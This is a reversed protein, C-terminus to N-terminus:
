SHEEEAESGRRRSRRGHEEEEEAGRSKSSQTLDKPRTAARSRNSVGRRRGRRGHEEEAETLM